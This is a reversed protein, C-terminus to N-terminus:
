LSLSLALAKFFHDIRSRFPLSLDRWFRRCAGAPWAETLVQRTM